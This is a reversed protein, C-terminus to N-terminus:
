RGGTREQRRVLGDYWRVLEPGTLGNLADPPWHYAYALDDMLTLYDGPIEAFFGM